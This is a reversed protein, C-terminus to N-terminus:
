RRTKRVVLKVGWQRGLTAKVAGPNEIREVRYQSKRAEPADPRSYGVLSHEGNASERLKLRYRGLTFYTDTQEVTGKDVAGLRRCIELGHEYGDIRAKLEVNTRLPARPLDM